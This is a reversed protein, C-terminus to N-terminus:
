GGTSERDSVDERVIIGRIRGVWSPTRETGPPLATPPRSRKTAFRSECVALGGAPRRSRGASAFQSQKELGVIWKNGRLGKGSLRNAGVQARAFQSQKACRTWSTTVGDPTERSTHLTFHSTQLGPDGSSVELKFSSVGPAFQSQKQPPM